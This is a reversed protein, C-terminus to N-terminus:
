FQNKMSSGDPGPPQRELWYSKAHQDFGLPIPVKSFSRMLFAVPTVVLFFLFGMILPTMLSNLARGFAMWGRNLPALLSPRLGAIALFAASLVGAWWHLVEGELLPWLAIILFVVAFTLGFSRNSAARTDSTDRLTEHFSDSGTM